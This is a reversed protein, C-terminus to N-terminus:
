LLAKQGLKAAHFPKRSSESEVFLPKRVMQNAGPETVRCFDDERKAEEIRVRLRSTGLISQLGKDKNMGPERQMESDGACRIEGEACM